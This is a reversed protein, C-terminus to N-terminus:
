EPAAEATEAGPSAKGDTADAPAAELGEDPEDEEEDGEGDREYHYDPPYQLRRAIMSGVALIELLSSSDRDMGLRQSLLVGVRQDEPLADVRARLDDNTEPLDVKGMQQLVAVMDLFQVDDAVSACENLCDQLTSLPGAIPEDRTNYVYGHPTEEPTGCDTCAKFSFMPQYDPPLTIEAAKAFVAALNPLVGAKVMADELAQAEDATFRDSDVARKLASKAVSLCVVMFSRAGEALILGYPVGLRNLFENKDGVMFHVPM